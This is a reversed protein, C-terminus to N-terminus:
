TKKWMQKDKKVNIPRKEPIMSYEVRGHSEDCVDIIGSFLGIFTVFYVHTRSM